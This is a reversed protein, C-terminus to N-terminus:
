YPCGGGLLVQLKQYRGMYPGKIGPCLRFEAIRKLAKPSPAGEMVVLFDEFKKRPVSTLSGQLDQQLKGDQFWFDEDCRLPKARNITYRWVSSQLRCSSM